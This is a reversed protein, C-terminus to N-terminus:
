LKSIIQGNHKVIEYIIQINDGFTTTITYM